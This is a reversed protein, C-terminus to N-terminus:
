KYDNDFINLKQCVEDVKAVVQKDTFYYQPLKKVEDDNDCYGYAIRSLEKFQQREEHSLSSLDVELDYTYSFMSCFLDIYIRNNIFDDILAYLKEKPNM